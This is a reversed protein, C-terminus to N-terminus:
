LSETRFDNLGTASTDMANLIRHLLFLFKVYGDYIARVPFPRLYLYSLIIRLRGPDSDHFSETVQTQFRVTARAYVLTTALPVVPHIQRGALDIQKAPNRIEWCTFKHRM